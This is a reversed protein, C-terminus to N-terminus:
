NRVKAVMVQKAKTGIMKVQPKCGSARTYLVGHWDQLGFKQDLMEVVRKDDFPKCSYLDFYLENSGDKHAFFHLSCHSTTIMQVFSQGPFDLDEADAWNLPGLPKMNIAKLLRDVFRQAEDKPLAKFSPAIRANVTIHIHELKM